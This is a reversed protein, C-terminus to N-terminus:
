LYLVRSPEPLPAASIRSGAGIVRASVMTLMLSERSERTSSASWTTTWVQVRRRVSVGVVWVLVAVAV